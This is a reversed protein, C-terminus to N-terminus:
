PNRPTKRHAESCALERSVPSHGLTLRYCKGEGLIVTFTSQKGCVSLLGLLPPMETKNMVPDRCGSVSRQM